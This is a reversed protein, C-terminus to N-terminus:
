LRYIPKSSLKIKSYMITRARQVDSQFKSEVCVCVMFVFIGLFILGVVKGYKKVEEPTYEKYDEGEECFEKFRRREILKQNLM